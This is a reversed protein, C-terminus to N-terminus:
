SKSRGRKMNLNWQAMRRREGTATSAIKKLQAISMKQSVGVRKSLGKRGPKKGDAFNEGMFTDDKSIVRIQERTFPIWDGLRRDYIGDYGQAQLEQWRRLVTNPEEQGPQIVYPNTIDLDAVVVYGDDGAYQEADRRNATFWMPAHLQEIDIGGQNGHYARVSETVSESYTDYSEDYALPDVVVITGDARQMFNGTHGLDLKISGGLDDGYFQQLRRVATYLGQVQPRPLNPPPPNQRLWARARAPDSLAAGFKEMWDMVEEEGPLSQLLEQRYITYIEDGIQIERPQSVRPFHPNRQNLAFFRVYDAVNDRRALDDGLGIVKIVHRQGPRHFVMQDRGEGEINYGRDTFYQKLKESVDLEGPAGIEAVFEDARM